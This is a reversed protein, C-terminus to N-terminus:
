SLWGGRRWTHRRATLTGPPWCNTLGSEPPACKPRFTSPNPNTSRPTRRNPSSTRRGARSLAATDGHSGATGCTTRRGVARNRHRRHHGGDREADTMDGSDFYRRGLPRWWLWHHTWEHAVTELAYDLGVDNRTISPHFAIGGTNVVLASWGTAAEMRAEIQERADGTLGTNLLMGDVREIRERPSLILVTPSGTLVTDVPPFVGHWGGFGMERLTDAVASEVTEEVRGRMEAEHNRFEALNSRFEAIDQETEASLPRQAELHILLREINDLEEGLMFYLEVERRRRADDEGNVLAGPLAVARRAWKDPLNGLEWSVVNFQYPATALDIEDPRYDYSAYLLLSALLTWVYLRWQFISLRAPGPTGDDNDPPERRWRLVM